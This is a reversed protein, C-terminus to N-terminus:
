NCSNQRLWPRNSPSLMEMHNAPDIIALIVAKELVQENQLELIGVLADGVSIDEFNGQERCWLYIHTILQNYRM